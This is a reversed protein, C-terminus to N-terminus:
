FIHKILKTNSQEQHEEYEWFEIKLSCRLSTKGAFLVFQMKWIIIHQIIPCNIHNKSQNFLLTNWTTYNNARLFYYKLWWSM